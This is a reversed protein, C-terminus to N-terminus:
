FSYHLFIKSISKDYDFPAHNSDRKIYQYNIGVALNNTFTKSLELSYNLKVDERKSLFNIDKQKYNIKEYGLTNSLLINNSFLYRNTYGLFYAYNDVDTRIGRQKEEQSLDFNFENLGYVDDFTTITNSFTYIYSDRDELDNNKYARKNIKLSTKYNLKKSINIYYEPEIYLNDQYSKNDLQILDKYLNLSLKSNKLYYSPSVNLTFLNIDKESYKSYKQSYVTAKSEIFFNKEVKYTHNFTAGIEFASDGKKNEENSINVDGILPVYISYTGKNSINDINSDYLISTFTDIKFDHKKNNQEIAQLRLLINNRVANPLKLELVSNFLEKAKEFNELKIYCQAMELKIRPNNEEKKLLNEFLKLAKKYDGQNYVERAKSFEKTFDLTSNIIPSHSNELKLEIVKAELLIASVITSILIIRKM